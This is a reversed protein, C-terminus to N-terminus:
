VPGEMTVKLWAGNYSLALEGADSVIVICNPYDTAPPLDAKTTTWVFMPAMPTMPMFFRQMKLVMRQAWMPALPEVLATAAPAAQTVM